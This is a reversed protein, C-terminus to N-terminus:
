RWCIRSRAPRMRPTSATPGSRRDVPVRAEGARLRRLLGDAPGTCGPSACCSRPCGRTRSGASPRSCSRATSDPRRRHRTRTSGPAATTVTSRAPPCSCCGGCRRIGWADLLRGARRCLRKRYAQPTRADPTPLFVLQDIRDPVARLSAADALDARVPTVGAPLPADSRRLGHVDAGRASLLAAARSGVDGCGAILVRPPVDTERTDSAALMPRRQRSKTCREHVRRGVEEQHARGPGSLGGDSATQGFMVAQSEDVQVVLDLLAGADVDDVM